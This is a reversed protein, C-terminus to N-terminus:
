IAPSPDAMPVAASTSEAYASPAHTGLLGALSGGALAMVCVMMVSLRALMGKRHDNNMRRKMM